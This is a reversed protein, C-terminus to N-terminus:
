NYKKFLFILISMDQQDKIYLNTSLLFHLSCVSHLGNNEPNPFLAVILVNDTAEYSLQNSRWVPITLDHTWIGNFDQNKKEPKKRLQMFQAWFQLSWEENSKIEVTRM